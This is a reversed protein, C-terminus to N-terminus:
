GGQKKRFQFPTMGFKRKFCNTMNGPYAFGNELAIEIMTKQTTLLADQVHKLRINCLYESFPTGLHAQFLKSFYSVSYGSVAAAEEIKIARMYNKEIFYVAEMIPKSLVTNHINAQEDLVGKEYILLLLQFLMSQLRFEMYVKDFFTNQSVELMDEALKFVKDRVEPTFSKPPYQYIQEMIQVGLRDSLPQVFEPSFKILIKEYYETSAPMTKHYIFPAMASVYGPHLTYTMTPTIVLRDGHIVFGLSYHDAAAEMSPMEYDGSVKKYTIQIHKGPPLPLAM